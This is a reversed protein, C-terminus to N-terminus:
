SRKKRKRKVEEYRETSQNLALAYNLQQIIEPHSYFTKGQYTYMKEGENKNTTPTMNKKSYHTHMGM